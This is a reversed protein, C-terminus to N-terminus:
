SSEALLWKRAWWPLAPSRRWARLSALPSGFASALGEVKSRWWGVSLLAAAPELCWPWRPFGSSAAAKEQQWPLAGRRAAVAVEDMPLADPEPPWAAEDSRRLLPQPPAGDLRARAGKAARELLDEDPGVGGDYLSTATRLWVQAELETAFTLHDTSAEGDICLEEEETALAFSVVCGRIDVLDQGPKPWAMKHVLAAEDHHSTYFFIWAYGFRDPGRLEAWVLSYQPAEPDESLGRPLSSWLLYGACLLEGKGQGQSKIGAASPGRSQTLPEHVLSTPAGPPAAALLSLSVEQMIGSLAAVVEAAEGASALRLQAGPSPWSGAIRLESPGPGKTVQVSPLMLLQLLRGRGGGDHLHVLLGDEGLQLKASCPECDPLAAEAELELTASGPRAPRVEAAFPRFTIETPEDESPGELESEESPEEGRDSCPQYSSLVEACPAM